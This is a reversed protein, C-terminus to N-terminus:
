QGINEATRGLKNPLPVPTGEPLNDSFSSSFIISAMPMLVERVNDLTIGQAKVWEQGEEKVAWDYLEKNNKDGAVIGWYEAKAVAYTNHFDIYATAYDGELADGRAKIWSKAMNRMPKISEKTIDGLPGGTKFDESIARNARYFAEDTKGAGQGKMLARANAALEGQAAIELDVNANMTAIAEKLANDRHSQQEKQNLKAVTTAEDSQIQTELLDMKNEAKKDEMVLDHQQEKDLREDKKEERYQTIQKKLNAALEKDGATMITQLVARSDMEAQNAYNQYTKALGEAGMGMSSASYGRFAKAKNAYFKLLNQPQLFNDMEKAARSLEAKQAHLKNLPVGQLRPETKGAGVMGYNSKKTKAIEKDLEQMQYEIKGRSEMVSGISDHEGENIGQIAWLREGLVKPPVQYREGDENVFTGEAPNYKWQALEEETGDIVSRKIKEQWEPSSNFANLQSPGGPMIKNAYFTSPTHLRRQEQLKYETLEQQQAASKLRSEAVLSQLGIEADKNKQEMDWKQKEMLMRNLERFSDTLPRYQM